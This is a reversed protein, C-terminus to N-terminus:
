ESITQAVYMVAHSCCMRADTCPQVTNSAACWAAKGMTLSDLCGCFMGSNNGGHQQQAREPQRSVDDARYHTSRQRRLRLLSFTSGRARCFANAYGHQCMSAARSYWLYM